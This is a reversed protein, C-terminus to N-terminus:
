LLAKIEIRTGRFEVRDGVVKGMLQLALPTNPAIAFFSQDNVKLEGASICIFYNFQNTFVVTGLSIAETQKTLDVKTLNSKVNQIEALQRGAKERELQLM